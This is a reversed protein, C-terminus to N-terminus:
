RIRRRAILGMLGLAALYMPYTDPEPATSGASPNASVFNWQSITDASAAVSIGAAIILTALVFKPFM